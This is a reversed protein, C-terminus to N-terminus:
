AYVWTVGEDFRHIVYGGHEEPEFDLHRAISIAHAPSEAAVFWYKRQGALAERWTLKEYRLRFLKM